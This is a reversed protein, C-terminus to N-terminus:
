KDSTIVSIVYYGIFGTLFPGIIMFAYDLPTMSGLNIKMGTFLSIGCVIFLFLMLSYRIIKRAM